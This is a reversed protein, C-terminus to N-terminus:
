YVFPRCQIELVFNDIKLIIIYKQLWARSQLYTKNICEYFNYNKIQSHWYLLLFFMSKYSKFLWTSFNKM